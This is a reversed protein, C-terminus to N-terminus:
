SSLDPRLVSADRLYVHEVGDQNAESLYLILVRICKSLSGKVAMEQSCMLSCQTYGLMRAAKAPYEADLDGTATFLMCIVNNKIIKNRKEITELLEITSSTISEVTNADVTIAGRISITNM